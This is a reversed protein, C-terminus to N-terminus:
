LRRVVVERLIRQIDEMHCDATGPTLVVAASAAAAWRLANTWGDGASLRVALAASVADGAGAANVAQQVPAVAHWAEEQNIAVIGDRGCTIVVHNLDLEAQLIRAAQALDALTDGIVDFTEGMEERNMKLITPRAKAAQELGPGHSDVLSPKGAERALTVIQAYLAPPLENPVSGGCIVWQSQPVHIRVRELLVDADAAKLKLQGSIIHSHRNHRREVIVHAIRTDGAVWILDHDIGYGDLLAVLEQGVRGAVFGLATTKEGLARLVVSTDFGKGGVSDVAQPTRMVTQARFEDIFLVRDLASNPTITLFM